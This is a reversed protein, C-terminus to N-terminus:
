HDSRDGLNAIRMTQDKVRRQHAERVQLGAVLHVHLDVLAARDRQRWQVGPRRSGLHRPDDIRRHVIVRARHLIQRSRWM